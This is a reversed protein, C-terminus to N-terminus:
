KEVSDPFMKAVNGADSKERKVEAEQTVIVQRELGDMNGIVSNGREHSAIAVRSLTDTRIVMEKALLQQNNIVERCIVRVNEREREIHGKPRRYETDSLLTNGRCIQHVRM